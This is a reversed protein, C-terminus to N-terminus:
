PDSTRHDRIRAGREHHSQSVVDAREAHVTVHFADVSEHKKQLISIVDMATCAALAMVTVEVPGAGVEPGSPSSMRVPFGSEAIGVFALDQEWTVKADM